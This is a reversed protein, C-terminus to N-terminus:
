NPLQSSLKQRIYPSLKYNSLQANSLTHAGSITGLCNDAGCNCEFPRDMKWETSPYFFHLEEGAEIPKLAILSFAELNLHVNPDCHHNLYQLYEPEFVFHEHEALQVTLYTPQEHISKVQFRIIEEGALYSRNAFLGKFSTQPDVRVELIVHDTLVTHAASAHM